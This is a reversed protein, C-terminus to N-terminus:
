RRKWTWCFLTASNIPSVRTWASAVRVVSRASMGGLGDRKLKNFIDQLAKQGIKRMGRATLEWRNGKKQIYGAEELV